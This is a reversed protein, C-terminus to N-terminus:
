RRRRLVSLSDVQDVIEFRPDHRIASEFYACSGLQAVAPNYAPPISDHLAICGEHCIRGSWDAWDREIGKLSHVGDVFVFDFEGPIQRNADYSFARVFHIRKPARVSRVEHHAIWKGWAVGLRGVLFPDIAFLEGDPAMAEALRRTTFGEYVGIEVLRKRGAAHRLIADQEALTTQTEALNFGAFYLAFHLASRGTSTM